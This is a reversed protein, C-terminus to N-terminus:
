KFEDERYQEYDVTRFRRKKKDLAQFRRQCKKCMCTESHKDDRIFVRM